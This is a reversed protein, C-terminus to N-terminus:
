SVRAISALPACVKAVAELNTRRGDPAHYVTTTTSWRLAHAFAEELAQAFTGQIMPAYADRKGPSLIWLSNGDFKKGVEEWHRAAALNM